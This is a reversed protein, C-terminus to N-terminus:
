SARCGRKTAGWAPRTSQFLIGQSMRSLAMTAGWAPRTSQFGTSERGDGLCGQRAGRPAHPNFNLHVARRALPTATAGWAPRTSQFGVPAHAFPSSNTAGWAPRTSQFKGCFEMSQVVVTAGWAPRTSQFEKAWAIVGQTDTAGWAPRTSQFGNHRRRVLCPMLRAGRPAHPNFDCVVQGARRLRRRAGRPAHPNFNWSPPM